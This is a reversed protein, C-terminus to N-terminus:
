SAPTGSHLREYLALARVLVCDVQPQFQGGAVRLDGRARDHVQATHIVRVADRSQSAFHSSAGGDRESLGGRCLCLALDGM